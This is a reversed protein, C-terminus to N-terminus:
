VGPSGASCVGRSARAPRQALGGSQATEFRGSKLFRGVSRASITPVIGRKVVEDALDRASWHSSPRGSDAPDECSVAVIQCIQEATFTPPAGARPQDGFVEQIVASLRRPEAESEVGALKEEQELWRDAWSLVTGRDVGLHRAIESHSTGGEIELIIRARMVLRHPHSRRRAIQQLCARQGETVRIKRVRRTRM